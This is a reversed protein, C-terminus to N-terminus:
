KKKWRDKGGKEMGILGILGIKFGEAAEKGMENLDQSPSILRANNHIMKMIREQANKLEGASLVGNVYLSEVAVFFKQYIEGMGNLTYGQAQCFLELNETACDYGTLDLTKNM